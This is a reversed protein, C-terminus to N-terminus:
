SKEGAGKGATETEAATAAIAPPAPAAKDSTAGTADKAGNEPPPSIGQDAATAASLRRRAAAMEEGGIRLRLKKVRRPDGDTVEFELGAPHAVIERRGPVRGVLAVLLGGVTDFEEIERDEPVLSMGLEAEVDAVPARADVIYTGEGSARILPGEDIDHEDEIDGVIEEVLDEITALGDTGGYEDIVVAMHTRTSQMKLLLDSARMSPPVYLIDRVLRASTITRKFDSPFYEWIPGKRSPPTQEADGNPRTRRKKVRRTLWAQLDKIHVMGRPDDLNDRYVVIRSHGAEQFAIMLESLPVTDDIAVIDARPVMVDEVRKESFHLINFLMFRESASFAESGSGKRLSDELSSRLDTDNDAGLATRFALRLRDLPGNSNGDDPAPDDPRTMESNAM